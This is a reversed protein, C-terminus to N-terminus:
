SEILFKTNVSRFSAPKWFCPLVAVRFLLFKRANSYNNATFRDRFHMGVVHMRRNTIDGVWVNLLQLRIADLLTINRANAQMTKLSEFGKLKCM